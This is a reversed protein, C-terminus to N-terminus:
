HASRMSLFRKQDKTKVIKQKVFGAGDCDECTKAIFGRKGRGECTNCLAKRVESGFYSKFLDPSVGAKEGESAEPAKNVAFKQVADLRAAPFAASISTGGSLTHMAMMVDRKWAELVLTFSTADFSGTAHVGGILYLDGNEIGSVSIHLNRNILEVMAQNVEFGVFRTLFGVETVQDPAGHVEVMAVIFNLGHDNIGYLTFGEDDGLHSVSDYRAELVQVIAAKPWAGAAMRTESGGFFSFMELFCGQFRWRLGSNVLAVRRIGRRWGGSKLEHRLM